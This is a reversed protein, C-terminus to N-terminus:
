TIRQLVTALRALVCQKELSHSRFVYRQMVDYVVKSGDTVLDTLMVICYVYTSTKVTGATAQLTRAISICCSSCSCSTGTCRGYVVLINLGDVDICICKEYMSLTIVIAPFPRWTSTVRKYQVVRRIQLSM